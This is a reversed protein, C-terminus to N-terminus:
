QLYASSDGRAEGPDPSMFRGITSANYRAGFNDLGSESDRQKGTFHMASLNPSPTCTLNMGYPTDTCWQVPTGSSNTRVRETGLWDAHNFSLSFNNSGANNATAVHRGGTYLEARLTNTLGDHVSIIHGQPDMVYDELSNAQQKGVRTGNADYFYNTADYSTCTGNSGWVCTIRNEADYVYGHTGDQTMNGASDYQHIGGDSIRNTSTDFSLNLNPPTGHMPTCPLNGTNTCYMNGYRDPNYTFGQSGMAATHLRNLSDYGYTWNGNESDNATYINGNGYYALGLSYVSGVSLSGLWTRNNYARTETLAGSGSGLTAQTLGVASYQASTLLNQTGLSPLTATFNQLRTAADYTSSRTVSSEALSTEHGFEDYTATFPYSTIGCTGPTCQRGGTVRGMADFDNSEEAAVVTGDHNVSWSATPHGVSNPFAQGPGAWGAGDYAYCARVTSTDSYNKYPSLLTGSGRGKARSRATSAAPRSRASTASSRVCGPTPLTTPSPKTSLTPGDM